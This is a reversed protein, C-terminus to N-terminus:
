PANGDMATFVIRKGHSDPHPSTGAFTMGGIYNRGLGNALSYNTNRGAGRYVHPDDQSLSVRDCGSGSALGLLLLSAVVVLALKLVPDSKV